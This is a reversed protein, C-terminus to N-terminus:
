TAPVESYLESSSLRNRRQDVNITYIPNLAMDVEEDITGPNAVEKVLHPQTNVECYTASDTTHEQEHLVLGYSPNKFLPDPDDATTPTATETGGKPRYHLTILCVM